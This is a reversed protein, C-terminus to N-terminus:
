SPLLFRFCLRLSLLVRLQLEGVLAGGAVCPSVATSHRGGIGWCYGPGLECSTGKHGEM